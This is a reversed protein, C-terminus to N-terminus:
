SCFKKRFNKGRVVPPGKPGFIRFFPLTMLGSPVNDMNTPKRASASFTSLPCHGTSLHGCIVIHPILTSWNVFTWVNCFQLVKTSLPRGLVMTLTSPSSMQYTVLPCVVLPCGYVCLLPTNNDNLNCVLILIESSVGFGVGCGLPVLESGTDSCCWIRARIRAPVLGSGRELQSNTDSDVNIQTRTRTAM